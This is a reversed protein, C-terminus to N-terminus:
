SRYGSQSNEGHFYFHTHFRPLFTVLAGKGCLNLNVHVRFKIITKEIKKFLYWVYNDKSLCM